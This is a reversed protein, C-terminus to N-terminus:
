ETERERARKEFFTQERERTRASAERFVCVRARQIRENVKESYGGELVQKRIESPSLAESDRPSDIEKLSPIVEMTARGQTPHTVGFRPGPFLSLDPEQEFVASPVSKEERIPEHISIQKDNSRASVIPTKDSQKDTSDKSRDTKMGDSKKKKGKRKDKSGDEVSTELSIQVPVVQIKTLSLLAKSGMQRGIQAKALLVMINEEIQSIDKLAVVRSMSSM